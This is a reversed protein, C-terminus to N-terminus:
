PWVMSHGLALGFNIQCKYNRPAYTLTVLVRPSSLEFDQIAIADFVKFSLLFFNSGLRGSLCGVLLKM